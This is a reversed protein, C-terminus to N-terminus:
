PPAVLGLHADRPEDAGGYGSRRGEQLRCPLTAYAASRHGDRREKDLKQARMRCGTRLIVHLGDDTPLRSREAGVHDRIHQAGRGGPNTTPRARDREDGM